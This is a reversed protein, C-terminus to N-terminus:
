GELAKEWDQVRHNFAVLLVSQVATVADGM